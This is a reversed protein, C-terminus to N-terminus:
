SRRTFGTIKGYGNFFEAVLDFAERQFSCRSLPLDYYLGITKLLIHHNRYVSQQQQFRSLGADHFRSM